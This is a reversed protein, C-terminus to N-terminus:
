EIAARSINPDDFGLVVEKEGGLRRGRGSEGRPALRVGEDM